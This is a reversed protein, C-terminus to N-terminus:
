LWADARWHAHEVVRLQMSARGMALGLLVEPHLRADAHIDVYRVRRLRWLGFNGTTREVAPHKVGEIRDPKWGWEQQM